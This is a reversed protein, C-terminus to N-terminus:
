ALVTDAQQQAQQAQKHSQQLRKTMIEYRCLPRAPHPRESCILALAHQAAGIAHGARRASASCSEARRRGRPASRRARSTLVTCLVRRHNGSPDLAGPSGDDLVYRRPLCSPLGRRHLLIRRALSAPRRPGSQAGRAAAAALAALEWRGAGPGAPM